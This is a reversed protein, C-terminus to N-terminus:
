SESQYKSPCKTSIKTAKFIGLDPISIWTEVGNKTIKVTGNVFETLKGEVLVTKNVSFGAPKEVDSDAQVYIMYTYDSRNQPDNLLFGSANSEVVNGVLQIRRDLFSKANPEEEIEKVSFVPMSTSVILLYFSAAAVVFLVLAMAIYRARLAM